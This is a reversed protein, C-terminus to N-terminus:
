STSSVDDVRGTTLYPKITDALTIVDLAYESTYGNDIYDRSASKPGQNYRMLAYAEDGKTLGLISNVYDICAALNLRIDFCDEECNDHGEEVFPEMYDGATAMTIQMLGRAGNYECRPNFRSEKAIMALVLELRVNPNMTCIQDAMVLIYDFDPFTVDKDIWGKSSLMDYLDSSQQFESLCNWLDNSSPEAYDDDWAYSITSLVLSAIIAFIVTSTITTLYDKM